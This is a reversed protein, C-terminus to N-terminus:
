SKRQKQSGGRHEETPHLSRFTDMGILPVNPSIQGIGADLCFSRWRCCGDLFFSVSRKEELETIKNIVQAPTRHASLINYEYEVGFEDLIGFAASVTDLDSMSGMFIGVKM